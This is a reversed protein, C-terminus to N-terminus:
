STVRSSSPDMITRAAVSLLWASLSMSFAVSRVGVYSPVKGSLLILPKILVTDARMIVAFTFCFIGMMNSCAMPPSPSVDDFM